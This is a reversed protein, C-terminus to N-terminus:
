VEIRMCIPQRAPTQGKNISNTHLNPSVLSGDRILWKPLPAPRVVNQNTALLPLQADLWFWLDPILVLGQKCWLLVSLRHTNTDARRNNNKFVHRSSPFGSSLGPRLCLRTRGSSAQLKRDATHVSQKAFPVICFAYAGPRRDIQGRHQLIQRGLDQLQSSVGRSVVLLGPDDWAMQLESDAVVLLQIFKQTTNSDGLASHQWIDLSDQQRLFSLLWGLALSGNNKIVTSMLTM